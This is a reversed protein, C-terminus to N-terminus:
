IPYALDELINNFNNNFINNFIFDFLSNLIPLFLFEYVLGICLILIIWTFVSYKLKYLIAKWKKM